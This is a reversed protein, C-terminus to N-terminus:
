EDRDMLTDLDPNFIKQKVTCTLNKINQETELHM